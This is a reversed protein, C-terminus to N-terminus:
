NSLPAKIAPHSIYNKIKFANIDLYLGRMNTPNVYELQPLDYPTRDMQEKAQELHNTYLHTDGLNGILFEPIM